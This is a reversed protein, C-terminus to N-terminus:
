CDGGCALCKKQGNVYYVLEGHKDCPNVEQGGM